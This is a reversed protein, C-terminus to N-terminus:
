DVKACSHIYKGVIFLTGAAILRGSRRDAAGCRLDQWCSTVQSDALQLPLQSSAAGQIHKGEVVISVNYEGLEALQQFRGALQGSEVQTTIARSHHWHPYWELPLQM